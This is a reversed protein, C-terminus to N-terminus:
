KSIKELFEKITQTQDVNSLAGMLFHDFKERDKFYKVAVKDGGIKSALMFNHADDPLYSFTVYFQRALRTSRILLPEFPFNNEKLWCVYKMCSALNLSSEVEEPLKGKVVYKAYKYIISPGRWHGSAKSLFVVEQEIPLRSKISNRCYSYILDFLGEYRYYYTCIHADSIKKSLINFFRDWERLSYGKTVYSKLESINELCEHWNSSSTDEIKRIFNAELVEHLYKPKRTRPM